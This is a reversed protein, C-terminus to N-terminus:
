AEILKRVQDVPYRPLGRLMVPRLKGEDALRKITWRSCGLARAAEAQNLALRPIDGGKLALAAAALAADRRKAPATLIQKLVEDSNKQM